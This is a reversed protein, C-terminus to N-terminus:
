SALHCFPRKPIQNPVGGKVRQVMSPFHFVFIQSGFFYLNAEAPNTHHRHKVKGLGMVRGVFRTGSPQSEARKQLQNHVIATKRKRAQKEGAAPLACRKEGKRSCRSM